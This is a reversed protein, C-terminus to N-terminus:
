HAGQSQAERERMLEEYRDLAQAYATWRGVGTAELEDAFRVVASFDAPRHRCLDAGRKLLARDADTLERTPQSHTASM